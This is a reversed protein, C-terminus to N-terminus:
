GLRPPPLDPRVGLGERLPGAAWGLHSGTSAVPTLVEANPLGIAVTACAMGACCSQLAHHTRGPAQRDHNMGNVDAMKPDSAHSMGYAAAAAPEARRDHPCAATAADSWLLLGLIVLVLVGTGGCLRWMWDAVRM